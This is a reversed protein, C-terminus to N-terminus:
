RNQISIKYGGIIGLTMTMETEIESLKLSSEVKYTRLFKILFIKMSM